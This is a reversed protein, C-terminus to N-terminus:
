SLFSSRKKLEYLIWMIRPNINPGSDCPIINPKFQTLIRCKGQM